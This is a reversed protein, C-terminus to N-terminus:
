GGTSVVTELTDVEDWGNEQLWTCANDTQWKNENVRLWRIMGELSSEDEAGDVRIAKKKGKIDLSIYQEVSVQLAENSTVKQKLKERQLNAKLRATSSDKAQMRHLETSRRVCRTSYREVAQRVKHEKPLAIGRKNFLLDHMLVLVLSKSSPTAKKSLVKAEAKLIDISKLLKELVPLYKLTEAVLAYCRTPSGDKAYHSCLQKLSPPSPAALIADLIRASTSFFDMQYQPQKRSSSSLLVVRVDVCANM